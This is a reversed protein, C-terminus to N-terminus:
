RNKLISKFVTFMMKLVSPLYKFFSCFRYFLINDYRCSHFSNVQDLVLTKSKKQIYCISNKTNRGRIINEWILLIAYDTNELAQTKLFQAAWIKRQQIYLIHEVNNFVLSSSSNLQFIAYEASMSNGSFLFIVSFLAVTTTKSSFICLSVNIIYM